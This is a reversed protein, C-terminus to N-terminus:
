VLAGIPACLVPSNEEFVGKGMISIKWLRLHEDLETEGWPPM